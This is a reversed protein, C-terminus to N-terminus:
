EEEPKFNACDVLKWTPDFCEPYFFWGHKIGHLNGKMDPDPNNCRIHANGPVSRREACQHCENMKTRETM